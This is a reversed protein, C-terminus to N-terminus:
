HMTPAWFHKTLSHIKFSLAALSAVRSPFLECEVNERPLLNRQSRTDNGEAGWLPLPSDSCTWLHMQSSIGAPLLETRANGLRREAKRVPGEGVCPHVAFAAWFFRPTLTGSPFSTSLHKWTKDEQPRNQSGNETSRSFGQFGAAVAWM